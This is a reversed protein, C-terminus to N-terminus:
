NKDYQFIPEHIDKLNVYLTDWFFLATASSFCCAVAENKNHCGTHRAKEVLGSGKGVLIDNTNFRNNNVIKCQM